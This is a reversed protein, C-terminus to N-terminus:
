RNIISIETKANDILNSHKRNSIEDGFNRHLAFQSSKWYLVFKKVNGRLNFLSFLEKFCYDCDVQWQSATYALSNKSSDLATKTKAHIKIITEVLVGWM